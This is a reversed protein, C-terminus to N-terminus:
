SDKQILVWGEEDWIKKYKEKMVYALWLQEMSYFISPPEVNADKKPYYYQDEIVSNVLRFIKTEDEEAMRQLQDQRPLWVSNAKIDKCEQQYQLGESEQYYLDIVQVQNGGPNCLSLGEELVEYDIFFDCQRPIWAKQIDEAKHCMIIYRNTLDM